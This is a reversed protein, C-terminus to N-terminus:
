PKGFFPEWAGLHKEYNRWRAVSRSHLKERVQQTSATRVRRETQHFNLCRADFSLGIHDLVGRVTKEPEDILTEYQVQYVKGPLVKDWHEIMSRFLNTFRAISQMDYCYEHHATFLSSFASLGSDYPNRRMCIVRANPLMLHLYGVYLWNGVLKDVIFRPGPGFRERLLTLYAQGARNLEGQTLTKIGGVARSLWTNEDAGVVEPHSALIQEMLTTGSRIMGVVLIPTEDTITSRPCSALFAPSFVSQMKSVIQEESSMDCSVAGRKLRNGVEWCAFAEDYRRNEDFVRGLGFALYLRERDPTTPDEYLQQMALVAPDDPKLKTTVALQFYPEGRKPALM